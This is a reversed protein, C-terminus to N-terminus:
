HSILLGNSPSPILVLLSNSGLSRLLSPKFHTPTILYSSEEFKLNFYNLSLLFRGLLVIPAPTLLSLSASYLGFITLANAIDLSPTLNLVPLLGLTSLALSPNPNTPNIPNTHGFWFEWNSDRLTM